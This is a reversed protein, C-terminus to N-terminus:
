EAALRRQPPPAERAMRERHAAVREVFGAPLRLRTRGLRELFGSTARLSLPKGPHDLFHDLAPRPAVM